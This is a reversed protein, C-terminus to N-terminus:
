VPPFNSRALDPDNFDERIGEIMLKTLARYLKPRCSGSFGGATDPTSVEWGDNEVKEGGSSVLLSSPEANAGRAEFTVEWM